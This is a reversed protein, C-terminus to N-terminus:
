EDEVLSKCKDQKDIACSPTGSFRRKLAPRCEKQRGQKRDYAMQFGDLTSIIQELPKLYRTCIFKKALQVVQAYSVKGQCDSRGYHASAKFM